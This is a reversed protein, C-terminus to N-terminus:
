KRFLGEAASRLASADNLRAKARAIEAELVAIRLRVEDASLRDLDEAALAALAGGTKKPPLIEDMDMAAM